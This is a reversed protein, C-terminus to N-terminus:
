KRGWRSRKGLDELDDLVGKAANLTMSSASIGVAGYGTRVVDAGHVPALKAAEGMAAMGALTAVADKTVKESANKKRKM